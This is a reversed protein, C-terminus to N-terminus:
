YARDLYFCEFGVKKKLLMVKHLDFDNLNRRIAAKAVKQGAASAEFKAVVGSSELHKRVVATRAGRPLTEVVFKTLNIRKLSIVQRKVGTTPGDILM